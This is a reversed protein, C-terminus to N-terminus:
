LEGVEKRMEEAVIVAWAIAEHHDPHCTPAHDFLADRVREPIADFRERWAPWDRPAPYDEVIRM